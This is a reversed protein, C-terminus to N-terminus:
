SQNRAYNNPKNLVLKSFVNLPWESFPKSWLIETEIIGSIGTIAQNLKFLNEYDSFPAAIFVDFNGLTRIATIVNPVKLIEEVVKSLDKKSSVKIVFLVTGIYGLKELNLTISSYPSVTKRLRNYRRSVSQTSVDLMKAIKSFSMRANELLTKIIFRDIRDFEYSTKDDIEKVPESSVSNGAIVGIPTLETKHLEGTYPEIVLNEPHDMQIVDVWIIADVDIISPHKKVDEVTHALEDVNKLAALCHINTRGIHQFTHLIKPINALFELVKEGSNSEARIMLFAICNYGWFKPNIQMISGKIVGSEVLRKFRMRIANLSMNCKKAIVAFSTRPDKLLMNLIEVDVEDVNVRNRLKNMM